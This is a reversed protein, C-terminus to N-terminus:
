FSVKSVKSLHLLEKNTPQGDLCREHVNFEHKSQIANFLWHFQEYVTGNFHLGYLVAAASPPFTRSGYRRIQALTLKTANGSVEAAMMQLDRISGLKFDLHHYVSFVARMVERTIRDLRHDSSAINLPQDSTASNKILQNDHGTRAVDGAGISTESNITTATAAAAAATTTASVQPKSINNTEKQHQEDLFEMHMHAIRTRRSLDQESIILQLDLTGQELRNKYQALMKVLDLPHYEAAVALRKLDDEPVPLDPDLAMAMNSAEDTGELVGTIACKYASPTHFHNANSTSLITMFGYASTLETANFIVDQAPVGDIKEYEDLMFVATVGKSKCLDSLSRLLTSTAIECGMKGMNTSKYWEDGFNNVEPHECFACVIYEVLYAYKANKDNENNELLLLDSCTGIYVVVVDPASALRAGVQLMIHSKGIHRPGTILIPDMCDVLLDRASGSTINTLSEGDTPDAFQLNLNMPDMAPPTNVPPLSKFRGTGHNKVQGLFVLWEYIRTVYQPRTALHILQIDAEPLDPDNTAVTTRTLSFSSSLNYTFDPISIPHSETLYPTVTSLFRHITQAVQQNDKVTLDLEPHFVSFRLDRHNTTSKHPKVHLPLDSSSISHEGQEEEEGQPGSPPTTPQENNQRQNTDAAKKDRSGFLGM